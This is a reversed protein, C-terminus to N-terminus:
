RKLLIISTRKKNRMMTYKQINFVVGKGEKERALTSHSVAVYNPPLPVWKLRHNNM